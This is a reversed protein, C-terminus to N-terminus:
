KSNQSQPNPNTQLKSNATQLKSRPYYWEAIRRPPMGLLYALLFLQNLLTARVVGVREWRRASTVVGLPSIAIRGHGRVRRAMELDEMLPLEPFGGLSRFVEAKLFFGQDGYPLQLIRSRWNAAREVWEIRRGAGDIRLSFAGAAVGPLDLTRRVEEAFGPPLRTDAHLFLLTEGRAIKAGANMQSARGRPATVVTAGRARAIEATRDESDGDVVIWEAASDGASDRVSDEVSDLTRGITEAENLAPIIISISEAM